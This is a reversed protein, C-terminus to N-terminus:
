YTEYGERILLEQGVRITKSKGLQNSKQISAVSTGYKRSIKWLTDGRQVRYVVVRADRDNPPPYKTMFRVVGDAIATATAEKGTDSKLIQADSSNTVFGAEVMVSPMDISKLVAFSRQKVSRTPPLGKKRSMSWLIQEALLESREMMAQQNVDVLMHLIDENGAGDIGLERAARNKNSLFKSATSQAGRPSLFFLEIGRANKSPASNLHVSVFIDAGKKKAIQTRDPLSLFEDRERTLVAKYGPRKNLAAALRKAIDLAERKEVLNHRGLAGPDSGGHGADIAIIYPWDPQGTSHGTAASRVAPTAVAKEVDIVIRHPMEDVSVLHFDRWSAKARLDLVIQCGWSLRNIRIRRVAGESVAVAQVARSAGAGRINIAVRDPNPVSVIEYPAATSLDVVIRTQEGRVSYRVDSVTSGAVVVGPLMLALAAVGVLFIPKM